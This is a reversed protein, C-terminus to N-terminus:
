QLLDFGALVAREDRQQLGPRPDGVLFYPLANPLHHLEQSIRKFLRLEHAQLESQQSDDEPLHTRQIQARVFEARALKAVDGQKEFWDAPALRPADDDPGRLHCCDIRSPRPADQRRWLLYARIDIQWLRTVGYADLQSDASVIPVIECLAQAVLLRDFPDNHHPLMTTLLATHRPEIHLYSFGNLDIAEHMAEEFPKTLTYKKKGIKIAIEWYSAPSVLKSHTPDLHPKPGDRQAATRRPLVV